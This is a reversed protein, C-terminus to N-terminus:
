SFEVFATLSLNRKTEKFSFTTLPLLKTKYKSFYIVGEKLNVEMQILKLLVYLSSM